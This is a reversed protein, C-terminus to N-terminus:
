LRGRKSSSVKSGLGAVLKFDMEKSLEIERDTFNKRDGGNALINPKIIKLTETVENDTDISVIVRDVISLAKVLRVRDQLPTNSEGKKRSLFDDNNVIVILEDGLTKALEFLDLHGIRLPDFGGSVAVITM